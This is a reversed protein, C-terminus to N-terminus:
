LVRSWLSTQKFRFGLDRSAAQKPAKGESTINCDDAFKIDDMVKRLGLGEPIRDCHQLPQFDLSWTAHM